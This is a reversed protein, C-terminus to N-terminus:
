QLTITEGDTNSALGAFVGRHVTTVLVYRRGTPVKKTTKKTAM